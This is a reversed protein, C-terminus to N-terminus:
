RRPRLSFTIMPLNTGAPVPNRPYRLWPMRTFLWSSTGVSDDQSVHAPDRLDGWVVRIQSGYKKATKRNERRDRAFCTVQHGQKLLEDLTSKGINGFPGALLVRM